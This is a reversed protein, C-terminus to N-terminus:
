AMYYLKLTPSVDPIGLIDFPNWKNVEPSPTHYAKHAVFGFLIWGLLIALIRSL